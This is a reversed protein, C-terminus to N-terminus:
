GLNFDTMFQKLKAYEEKYFGSLNQERKSTRYLWEYLAKNEQMQPLKGTRMIIAKVQKCNDRFDCENADKPYHNEQCIQDIRDILVLKDVSLDPTANIRRYWTALSKEQANGQMNPMRKYHEVFDYLAQIREEFSRKSISQDPEYKSPYEDIRSTLGVYLDKYLTCENKKIMNTIVSRVSKENSDPRLLLVKQILEQMKIPENTEWLAKGISKNVSGAYNSSNALTYLSKLGIQKFTKKDSLCSKVKEISLSEYVKPNIKVITKLIMDSSMPANNQSLIDIIIPKIKEPILFVSMDEFPDDNDVVKLDFCEQCIYTLLGKAENIMENSVNDILRFKRKALIPNLAIETILPDNYNQQVFNQIGELNIAKILKVHCIYTIKMTKEQSIKTRSFMTFEDFFVSILFCFFDFDYDIPESEKINEFITNEPTIYALENFKYSKIGSITGDAEGWLRIKDKIKNYIQRTRDRTLGEVIGVDEITRNLIVIQYMIRFERDSLSNHIKRLNYRAFFPARGHKLQYIILKCDQSLLDFINYKAHLDEMVDIVVKNMYSEDKPTHGIFLICSRYFAEDFYNLIDEESQDIRFYKYTEKNNLFHASADKCVFLAHEIRISYLYSYVSQLSSIPLFAEEHDGYTVIKAFLSCLIEFIKSFREVYINGSIPQLINSLESDNASAIYGRLTALEANVIKANEEDRYKEAISYLEKATGKGVKNLDEFDWLSFSFFKSRTVKNNTLANYARTSIVNELCHETLFIDMSSKKTSQLSEKYLHVKSNINGKNNGADGLAVINNYRNIESRNDSYQAEKASALLESVSERDAWRLKKYDCYKFTFFETLTVYNVSLIKIARESLCGYLNNASLFEILKEHGNKNIRRNNM